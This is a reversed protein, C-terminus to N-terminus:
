SVITWVESWKSLIIVNVSCSMLCPSIYMSSVSPSVTLKLIYYDSVGLDLLLSSGLDRRLVPVVRDFVVQGTEVFQELTGIFAAFPRSPSFDIVLAFVPGHTIRDDESEDLTGVM